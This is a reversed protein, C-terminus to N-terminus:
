YFYVARRKSVGQCTPCKHRKEKAGEAGVETVRIVGTGGCTICNDFRARHLKYDGSFEAYYALLFQFRETATAKRWWDEPSYEEDGSAKRRARDLNELYRRTREELERQEPSKGDDIQEEEVELGALAKDEGLIWTGDGYTAQLRRPTHQFRNGWLSDLEEPSVDDKMSKLDDLLKERVKSPAETEAWSMLSDMTVNSEYSKRKVVGVVRKFWQSVLHREMAAKREEEFRDQLELFEGRLGAQPFQGEFADLKELATTFRGRHMLQRIETLAAAEERHAMTQELEDLAVEVRSALAQDGEAEAAESAAQLHQQAQELAYVSRLEQAFEYHRLGSDLNVELLREDYFQEPTLIQDAPVVVPEPPAALMRLAVKTTNERIRLELFQADKRLVRGVLQGGNKLMLLDATVTPIGSQQRYGFSTKLRQGEGPFLDNWSLAYRGGHRSSVLVLGDLDHEVINGVLLRGDRLRVIENEGPLDQAASWPAAAALVTFLLLLLSRMAKKSSMAPSLRSM